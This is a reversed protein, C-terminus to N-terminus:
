PTLPNCLTAIPSPQTAPVHIEYCTSTDTDANAQPALIAPVILAPLLV